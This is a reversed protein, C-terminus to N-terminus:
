RRSWAACPVRARPVSSVFPKAPSQVTVAYATHTGIGGGPETRVTETGWSTAASLGVFTGASNAFVYTGNAPLTTGAPVTARSSATGASNSGWIQWGSINVAAGSVNRIEVVEDNGGGPGGFAVQSIVVPGAAEAAPAAVAFAAVALAAIKFLQRKM